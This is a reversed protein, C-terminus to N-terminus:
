ASNTSAWGSYAYTPTFMESSGPAASSNTSFYPQVHGDSESGSTSSAPESLGVGMGGDGDEVLVTDDDRAM